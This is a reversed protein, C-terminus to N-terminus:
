STPPLSKIWADPNQYKVEPNADAKHHRELISKITDLMERHHEEDSIIHTFLSRLSTLEINYIQNIEKMMLQLTKMQVFMYYEEGLISEFFALKESLQSLEM